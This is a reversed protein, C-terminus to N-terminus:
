IEYDMWNMFDVIPRMYKKRLEIDTSKTLKSHISELRRYVGELEKYVEQESIESSECIKKWM